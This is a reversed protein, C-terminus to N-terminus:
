AGNEYIYSAYLVKLFNFLQLVNLNSIIKLFEYEHDNNHEVKTFFILVTLRMKRGLLSVSKKRSQSLYIKFHELQKNNDKM